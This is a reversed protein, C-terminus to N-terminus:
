GDGPWPRIDLEPWLAKARAAKRRYTAANPLAPNPTLRMAFVDELGFPAMVALDGDAGLRAAVAHTKSAYLRLADEVGAIAPYAGGFRASYWLPARAQNRLEIPPESPFARAGRRIWADEADWSLDADWYAIDIDKLGYGSPRGTLANWVTNYLAGSVIWAEPAGFGDLRELRDRILPDAWLLEAARATLCPEDAM